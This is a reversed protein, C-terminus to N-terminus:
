KEDPLHLSLGIGLLDSTPVGDGGIVRALSLNSSLYRAIDYNFGVGYTPRVRDISQEEYQINGGDAYANDFQNTMVFAAGGKGYVSVKHSLPLILKAVTDVAGENLQEDKGAIGYINKIKTDAYQTYGSEIAIYPTFQYGVYARGGFGDNDVSIAAPGSILMNPQSQVSASEVNLNSSTRNVKTEGLQVGTYFHESAALVTTTFGGCILCGLYLARMKQLQM